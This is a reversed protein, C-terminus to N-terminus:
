LGKRVEKCDLEVFHKAIKAEKRDSIYTPSRYLIWYIKNLLSHSHHHIKDDMKGYNFEMCSRSNSASGPQMRRSSSSGGSGKHDEEHHNNERLHGEQSREQQLVSDIIDVLQERQQEQRREQQGIVACGGM